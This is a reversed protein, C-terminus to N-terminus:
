EANYAELAQWRADDIAPAFFFNSGAGILGLVLAPTAGGGNAAQLVGVGTLIGGAGALLGRLWRYRNMRTLHQKAADSYTFAEKLEQYSTGYLNGEEDMLYDMRGTALISKEKKGSIRFPLHEGGYVNMDVRELVSIHGKKVRMAYTEEGKHLESVNIFVGHRNRIMGVDQWSVTTEGMDFYPTRLIPKRYVLAEGRLTDGQHNVVYNYDALEQAFIEVGSFMLLIPLVLRKM